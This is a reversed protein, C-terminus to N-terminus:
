PPADMWARWAPWVHVIRALEGYGGGAPHAGDGRAIEPCWLPSALLSEWVSLFPLGLRACAAEQATSLARIRGDAQEHGTPPPGVVLVPWHHSAQTMMDCTAAMSQDHTLRPQGDPLTACDNVGFSLVIGGDRRGALRTESEARWRRAVDRSTQGRVGLNYLTVDRGDQREMACLRGAWGQCTEDGTGTVYSDGIFCIRM